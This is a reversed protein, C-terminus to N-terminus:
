RVPDGPHEILFLASSARLNPWWHVPTFSGRGTLGVFAERVIRYGQERCLNRFDRVTVLRINPTDYWQYPLNGTVPLRGRWGLQLRNRWSAFNPVTVVVQRGVRTSERLLVLPDRIVTIVQNLIVADFSGNALHSLGEELDGHVVSLGSAIAETAADGDLEIGAERISKERKLLSLLEGRGCGLDLVSSGGSVCSLIEADLARDRLTTLNWDVDPAGRRPYATHLQKHRAAISM